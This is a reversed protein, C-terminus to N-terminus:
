SLRLQHSIKWIDAERFCFITAESTVLVRLNCKGIRVDQVDMKQSEHFDRKGVEVGKSDMEKKGVKVKRSEEILIM